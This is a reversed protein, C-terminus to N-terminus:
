LEGELDARNIAVTLLQVWESAVQASPAIFEYIRQPTGLVFEPTGDSVVTCENTINIWGIAKELQM